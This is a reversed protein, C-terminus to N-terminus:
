RGRRPTTRTSIAVKNPKFISAITAVTSKISAYVAKFPAAIMSGAIVVERLPTNNMRKFAEAYYYAKERVKPAMKHADRYVGRIFENNVKRNFYGSKEYGIDHAKCLADLADIPKPGKKTNGHGPGCYHGHLQNWKSGTKNKKIYGIIQFISLRSIQEPTAINIKYESKKTNVYNTTDLISNEHMEETSISLKSASKKDTLFNQKNTLKNDVKVENKVDSVIRENEKISKKPQINEKKDTFIQDELELTSFKLNLRGEELSSSTKASVEHKNDSIAAAGCFITTLSFIMIGKKM